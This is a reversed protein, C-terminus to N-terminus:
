PRPQDPGAGVVDRQVAEHQEASQAIRTVGDQHAPGPGRQGNINEDGLALLFCSVTDVPRM